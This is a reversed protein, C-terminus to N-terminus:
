IIFIGQSKTIESKKKRIIDAKQVKALTNDYDLRKVHYIGFAIKKNEVLKKNM